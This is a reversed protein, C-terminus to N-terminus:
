RSPQAPAEKGPERAGPTESEPGPPTVPEESADGLKIVRFELPLQRFAGGDISVLGAAGRLSAV